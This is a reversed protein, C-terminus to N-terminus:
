KNKEWTLGQPSMKYQPGGYRTNLQKYSYPYRSVSSQMPTPAIVKTVGVRGWGLTQAQYKTGGIM